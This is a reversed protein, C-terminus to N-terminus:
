SVGDWFPLEDFGAFFALVAFAEDELPLPLPLPLFSSSSSASPTTMSIFWCTESVKESLYRTLKLLLWLRLGRTWSIILL